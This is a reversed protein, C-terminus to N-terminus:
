SRNRELNGAGSDIRIAENYPGKMAVIHWVTTKGLGVLEALMRTTYGGSSYLERIYRQTEGDVKRKDNWSWAGKRGAEALNDSHNGLRLHDPRVCHYNGCNHLVHLTGPDGYSLCWSVVHADVSRYSGYQNSSSPYLWCGEISSGTDILKYFGNKYEFEDVRDLCYKKLYERGKLTRSM